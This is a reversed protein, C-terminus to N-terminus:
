APSPSPTLSDVQRGAQKSQNTLGIMGTERSRARQKQGEHGHADIWLLAILDALAQLRSRLEQTVVYYVRDVRIQRM